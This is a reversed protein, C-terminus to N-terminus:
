KKLTLLVRFANFIEAFPFIYHTKKSQVAVLLFRQQMHSLATVTCYTQKMIM